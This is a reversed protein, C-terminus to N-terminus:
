ANRVPEKAPAPMGAAAVIRGVVTDAAMGCQRAAAMFGADPSLCPNANVELVWPRGAPDVRFDVRAYGRLGFRQWCARALDRLHDLLAADAGPFDFRRPTAEYEFSAPNWKAEYGVIRPKGVPYDAFEIEAVPLVAVTPGDALLSVNFERGDVFQEAFVAGQRVRAAALAEELQGPSGIHMVADDAIGVSADECDPKIIFQGPITLGITAREGPCYWPPTPIGDQQLWTKALTKCTTILCASSSSGTFPMGRAELLAPVVHILRGHGALSEVLNFVGDPASRTLTASLAQLDLTVATTQSCHGLAALADSILEAQQIVDAEDPRSDEGLADHLIAVNM